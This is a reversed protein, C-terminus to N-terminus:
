QSPWWRCSGTSVGEKGVRREESREWRIWAVWLMWVNAAIQLTTNPEIPAKMSGDKIRDEHLAALRQIIWNQFETYRDLLVPARQMFFDLGSFFFRYRWLDSSCVDSSWDSIRM